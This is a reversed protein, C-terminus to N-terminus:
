TYWQRAYLQIAGAVKWSDLYAECCHLDLKEQLVPCNQPVLAFIISGTDTVQFDQQALVETAGPM